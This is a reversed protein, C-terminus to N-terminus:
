NQPISGCTATVVLLSLLTGLILVRTSQAWRRTAPTDAVLLTPEEDRLERRVSMWRSLSTRVPGPPPTLEEAPVLLSLTESRPCKRAPVSGFSFSQRSQEFTDTVLHPVSTQPSEVCIRSSNYFDLYYQNSRLAVGRLSSEISDRGFSRAPNLVDNAPQLSRGSEDSLVAPRAYTAAVVLTAAIFAGFALQIKRIM